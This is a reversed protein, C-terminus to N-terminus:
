KKGVDFSGLLKGVSKVYIELMKAVLAADEQITGGGWIIVKPVNHSMVLLM